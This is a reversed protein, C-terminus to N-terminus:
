PKSTKDSSPPSDGLEKRVQQRGELVGVALAATKEAAIRADNMGNTTEVVKQMNTAQEKLSKDMAHTKYAIWAMVAGFFGTAVTILLNSMAPSIDFM